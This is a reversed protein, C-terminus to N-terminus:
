AAKRWRVARQREGRGRVHYRQDLHGRGTRSTSRGPRSGGSRPPAAASVSRYGSRRPTTSTAPTGATASTPTAPVTANTCTPHEKLGRIPPLRATLRGHDAKVVRNGYRDTVHRPAPVLEDLVRPYVAGPRHCSGGSGPRMAARPHLFTTRGRRRPLNLRARRDGARAPRGSPLPIELPGCGQHM